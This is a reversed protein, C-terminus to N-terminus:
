HITPFGVALGLAVLLCVAMFSDVRDLVGGHGPILQGSDKVGARRKFASEALDGAQGVISAAFSIALVPVASLLSAGTLAEAILWVIWGAICGGAAGGWFGAWTKNPSVRPWLKPGGIARGSFFAAIDTTWVVAFMWAVLAIGIVPVSRALLPVIGILVGCLLGALVWVAIRRGFQHSWAEDQAGTGSAVFVWGTCGILAIFVSVVFAGVSGLSLFVPLGAIGFAALIRFLLIRRSNLSTPAADVETKPAILVLWEVVVCFSAVAWMLAFSIGGFGTAAVAAIALLLASAVRKQLESWRIYRTLPNESLSPLKM